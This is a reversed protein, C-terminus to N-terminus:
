PQVIRQKQCIKYPPFAYSIRPSNRRSPSYQLVSARPVIVWGEILHRDTASGFGRDASRSLSARVQHLVGPMGPHITCVNSLKPFCLCFVPRYVVSLLGWTHVSWWGAMPEAFLRHSLVTSCAVPPYQAQNPSDTM